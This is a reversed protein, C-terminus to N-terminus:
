VIAKLDAEVTTTPQINFKEVLVNLVNPSVFAPLTPGLRIGKVGLSLLALLVIVAKQEYWALDFSIPLDNIDQLAFVEKLKLAIVVLSYSDNCQGADLVRPIGGITGLDLHNYRYKACGATLIVSDSPLAQALETFYSRDKHRGDCGGMVVFRKIAGSQIAAIVKDAIALVSNHAFGIPITKGPSENIGGLSISKSIITSFDKPQDDKRDAIHSVGPWQVLGTTFLRNKYTDKPAQICNTTMLIAGNFADFEKQQNHWASGYNGILHPYKKLGPYANAPLMEGHTYINVGKGNTQILLEELDKLDHGSILIAPGQKTGTYVNTIEPHGYRFTNAEDLLKMASVGMTGTKMVWGILEEVSIETSFVAPLASELFTSIDDNFFGLINAHDTYAAIGKLGYVLLQKLSRIDENQESLIGVTNGKQLYLEMTTNLTFTASDPVFDQFPHYNKDQYAGIFLRHITDRIKFGKQILDFFSQSDFNVNTITSFLGQIIFRDVVADRIGLSRAKTAWVSIGALQYIFLDQLVATEATKGCVGQITCGQNKVTEQCQFCFMM